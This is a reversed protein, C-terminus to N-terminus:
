TYSQLGTLLARQLHAVSSVQELFNLHKM